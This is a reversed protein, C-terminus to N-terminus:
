HGNGGKRTVAYANVVKGREADGVMAPQVWVMRAEDLRRIHGRRLHLRPSQRAEADNERATRKTRDRDTIIHLTKYTFLPVKGAKSRKRNLADPPAHDVLAVNSCALAGLIDMVDLCYSRIAEESSQPHRASTHFVPTFRLVDNNDVAIVAGGSLTWRDKRLNVFFTAHIQGQIERMLAFVTAECLEGDRNDIVRASFEVLVLSFPLHLRSGRFWDPPMAPIQHIDGGHIKVAERVDDAWIPTKEDIEAYGWSGPSILNEVLKHAKGIIESTMPRKNM